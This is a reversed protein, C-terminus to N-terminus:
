KKKFVILKSLIYNMIIVMANSFVKVIIDNIFLLNIGIYMIMTEMWFSVIRAGIFGTVEKVLTKKDINKSNFVFLKNTIFAFLVSAIWAFSNAVLEDMRFANTLVFYIIFNIVTTMVGFFLYSIQEKYKLCINKIM